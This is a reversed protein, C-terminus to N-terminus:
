FVALPSILVLILLVEAVSRWSKGIGRLRSAAVISLLLRCEGGAVGPASCEAATAASCNRSCM